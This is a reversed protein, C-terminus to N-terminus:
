FRYWGNVSMSSEDEWGSMDPLEQVEVQASELNNEYSYKGFLLAKFQFITFSPISSAAHMGNFAVGHISISDYPIIHHTIHHSDCSITHYSIIIIMDCSSYCISVWSVLTPVHSEYHSECVWITIDHTVYNQPDAGTSMSPLIPALTRSLRWWSTLLKRLMTSAAEFTRWASHQRWGRGCRSWGRGTVDCSSM